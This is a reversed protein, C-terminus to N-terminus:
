LELGKAAVPGLVHIEPPGALLGALAAGVTKMGDGAGHAALADQDSYLEYFWVTVEDGSDVHAAYIETGAEDAVNDMALGALVEAVESRKGEVATLKAIVAVKSM